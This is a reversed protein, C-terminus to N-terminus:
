GQPPGLRPEERPKALLREAFDVREELEGMRQKLEELEGLRVQVDEVIQDRENSSPGLTKLEQQRMKWTSWRVLVIGAAVSMIIGGIGVVPGIVEM